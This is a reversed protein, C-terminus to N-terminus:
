NVMSRLAPDIMGVPVESGEGAVLRAMESEECQWQQYDEEEEEEEMERGAGVWFDERTACLGHKRDIHIELDYQRFFKFDCFPCELDRKLGYNLGTLAEVTTPDDLKRSKREKVLRSVRKKGLHMSRVHEELNGRSTFAQDCGGTWGEIGKSMSLDVKGCVFDRKKEHVTRIHTTLSSQKTFSKKCGPCPVNKREELSGSEHVSKIHARLHNETSYIRKCRMCQPPHTARMHAQLEKQTAFTTSSPDNQNIHCETCSFHRGGHARLKHARLGGAQDYGRGCEELTIPNMISCVYPKQGLHVTKIHAQLTSHKRFTENCPAYNNCRYREAGMHVLQHRKLRSSDIFSKGCEPWQCAYERINTHASKFHHNLHTDRIFMKGCNEFSCTYPRENTHSRYHDALRVARNYSKSCEEYKCPFKKSKTDQKAHHSSPTLPEQNDSPDEKEVDSYEDSSSRSDASADSCERTTPSLDPTPFSTTKSKKLVPLQDDEGAKRKLQRINVTLAPKDAM